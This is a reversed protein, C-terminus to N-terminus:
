FDCDANRYTNADCYNDSHCYTYINPIADSDGTHDSSNYHDSDFIANSLTRFWVLAIAVLGLNRRTARM